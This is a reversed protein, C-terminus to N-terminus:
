NGGKRIIDKTIGYICADKRAFIYVNEFYNIFLTSNVQGCVNCNHLRRM